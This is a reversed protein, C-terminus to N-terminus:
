NFNLIPLHHGFNSNLFIHLWILYLMKLLSNIVLLILVLIPQSLLISQIKYSCFESNLSKSKNNSLINQASCIKDHQLRYCRHCRARFKDWFTDASWLMWFDPRRIKKYKHVISSVNKSFSWIINSQIMEAVAYRFALINVSLLVPIWESVVLTYSLTTANNLWKQSPINQM